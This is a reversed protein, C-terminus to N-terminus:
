AAPREQDAKYLVDLKGAHWYNTILMNAEIADSPTHRWVGHSRAYISGGASVLDGDVWNPEPPQLKEITRKWGHMVDDTDRNGREPYFLFGGRLKVAPGYCSGPRPAEVRLVEDELVDTIRVRDGKKFETM